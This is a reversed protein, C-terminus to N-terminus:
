YYQHRLPLRASADHYTVLFAMHIPRRSGGEHYLAVAVSVDVVVICKSLETLTIISHNSDAPIMSQHYILSPDIFLSPSM